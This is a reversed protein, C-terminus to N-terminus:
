KYSKVKDNNAYALRLAFQATNLSTVPQTLMTEWALEIALRMKTSDAPVREIEVLVSDIYHQQDLQAQASHLASIWFIITIILRMM